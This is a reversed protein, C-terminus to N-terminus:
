ATSRAPSPMYRRPPASPPSTGTAAVTQAYPRVLYTYTLDGTFLASADYTGLLMQAATADGTVDGYLSTLQGHTLTNFLM